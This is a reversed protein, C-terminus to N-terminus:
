CLFYPMIPLLLQVWSYMSDRCASSLREIHLAHVSQAASSYVFWDRLKGAQSRYLLM